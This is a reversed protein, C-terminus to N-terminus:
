VKGASVLSLGATQYANNASFVFSVPWFPVFQGYFGLRGSAKRVMRISNYGGVMRGQLTWMMLFLFYHLRNTKQLMRLAEQRYWTGLKRESWKLGSMWSDSWHEGVVWNHKIVGTHTYKKDIQWNDLKYFTVSQLSNGSIIDKAFDKFFSIHSYILLWTM